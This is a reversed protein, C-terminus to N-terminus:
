VTATAPQHVPEIKAVNELLWVEVDVPGAAHLLPDGIPEPLGDTTFLNSRFEHLTAHRLPWPQHHIRCRYIEGHHETYLCYREVLFFELSGPVANFLEEDHITWKAHFRARTEATRKLRYDITGKNDTLEIQSYFYPLHYFLRAGWVTIASNADLSFFWVGPVGDIHVYTRVNTEHFSSVFPIPPLYVPRVNWLTFPALAIWAEGEFTDIEIPEPILPRLVEVPVKWHMFLMKDWSQLMVPSGDPRQRVNIRDELTPEIPM